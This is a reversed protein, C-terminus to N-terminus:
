RQNPRLRSGNAILESVIDRAAANGSETSVVPAATSINPHTALRSSGGMESSSQQPANMREQGRRRRSEAREEAAVEQQRGRQDLYRRAPAAAQTLGRGLSRLGAPAGPVLNGAKEALWGTGELTDAGYGVTGGLAGHQALNYGLSAVDAAIGVNGAVRGIDDWPLEAGARVLRELAEGSVRGAEDLMDPTIPIGGFNTTSNLGDALEDMM